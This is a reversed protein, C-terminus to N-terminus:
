FLRSGLAALTPAESDTPLNTAQSNTEFTIEEVSGPDGLPKPQSDNLSVMVGGANGARLTLQKDAEWTRQSGEPLVGEFETKGDAVVRIWSQETLTMDVRVSKQAIAPMLPLQPLPLANPENTSQTPNAPGVQMQWSQVPAAPIRAVSTSSRNLLYSLSSVAGIVLLLYLLYLHLPRLQAQISIRWAPHRSLKFHSRTPFASAFEAGNIGLADAYRRIFGHIYVPEPLQGLNGGEIASLLRVPIMTIAAIKDLSLKQEQRLQQLRKGLDALRESQERDFQLVHNKM